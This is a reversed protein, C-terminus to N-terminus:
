PANPDACEPPQPSLSCPDPPPQTDCQYTESFETQSSIGVSITLSGPEGNGDVRLPFITFAGPGSVNLPVTVPSEPSVLQCDGATTFSIESDGPPPNNFIDSVYVTHSEGEDLNNTAPNIVRDQNDVVVIDFNPNASLTLVASDRVNVLTRSCWIGDGEPPCLLGNYLAPDNNQDHQANNNFDIFIEEQGAICQREGPNAMCLPLNPTFAGDENQDTFAEPLNDFLDAESQDMIGNGNRDIFSEEGIAHVLITSRGGRTFGLDDPCAGETGNHSPCDYDDDFITRVFASGTLTPFRPESSTWLVSCEGSVPQSGSVRNGNEVGTLCSPDIAGYETTFVAATGDIVPNNFKDAMRVTITREVGDVTFGNRVVFPGGEDGSTSEVSLSISNQDPLGTSVVIRDSATAVQDGNTDFSAIVRVSTAVDGSSVTTSVEGAQDTIGSTPSVSLGGVETTLSFQVTVSPLPQGNADVVQFTVKSTESRSINDNTDQIGGTGRLVILPPEVSVFNIANAQASAVNITGTARSQTGLLAATITDNGTCGSPLYQTTATANITPVPNAPSLNTFGADICGSTFSVNEATTIREGEPTLITVSLEAAGSASLSGSPFIRIQNDLFTGSDDFYGIRFGPEGVQFGLSGTISEENVTATANFTSGGQTNGAEVLFTAEGNSDTLANAPTLTVLDASVNVVVNRRNEGTVRVVLTGPSTSSVTSTQQGEPDLLTLRLENIQPLFGADSGGGGGGCATIGFVIALVAAARSFLTAGRIIM